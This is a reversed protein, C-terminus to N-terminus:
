GHEAEIFGDAAFGSQVGVVVLFVTGAPLCHKKCLLPFYDQNQLLPAIHKMRPTLLPTLLVPTLCGTFWRISHAYGEVEVVGRM